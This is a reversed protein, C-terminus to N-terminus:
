DEPITQHDMRKDEEALLIMDVLDTRLEKREKIDAWADGYKTDGKEWPERLMDSIGKWNKGLKAYFALRDPKSACLSTMIEHRISWPVAETKKLSRFGHESEDRSGSWKEEPAFLLEDKKERLKRFGDRTYPRQTLIVKRDIEEDMFYLSRRRIHPETLFGETVSEWDICAESANLNRDKKEQRGKTKASKLLSEAYDIAMDLPLSVPAYLIGASITLEGGTGVWLEKAGDPVKEDKFTKSFENFKDIATEVFMSAYGCHILITIDDGGVILPRIPLIGIFDDGEDEIYRKTVAIMAAKAARCACQDLAYSMQNLWKQWAVATPEPKSEKFQRFQEGMDNGDMCVVAWRNRNGLAFAGDKGSRGNRDWPSGADVDYFFEADEAQPVADRIAQLFEKETSSKVGHESGVQLRERYIPHIGDSETTPYMGSLSCPQGELSEPQYCYTETIETAATTYDGSIGFRITLGNKMAERVLEDKVSRVAEDDKCVFAGKGGGSYIYSSVAGFKKGVAVATERDFVDVMRSGGICCKLKPVQFIYHQIGKLDYCLYTSM